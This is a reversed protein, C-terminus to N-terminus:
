RLKEIKVRRVGQDGHSLALAEDLQASLQRLSEIASREHSRSREFDDISDDLLLSETAFDGKLNEATQSWGEVAALSGLCFVALCIRDM